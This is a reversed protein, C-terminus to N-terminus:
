VSTPNDDKAENKVTLAYNGTSLGALSLVLILLNSDLAIGQLLCVWSIAIASLYSLLVIARKSSGVNSASLM